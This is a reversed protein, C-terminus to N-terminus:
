NSWNLVGYGLISSDKADYKRIGVVGNTNGEITYVSGDEVTLVVGMHNPDNKVGLFILDGPTPTTGPTLWHQYDFADMFKDVDAYRPVTGKISLCVQELAWSIYCACWPTDKSWGNSGVYGGIYWESYYEFTTIGKSTIKGSSGLQSALVKLFSNRGLSDTVNDNAADDDTLAKILAVGPSLLEPSPTPSPDPGYPEASVESTSDSATQSARFDLYVFIGAALLALTVVTVVIIALLTGLRISVNTNHRKM